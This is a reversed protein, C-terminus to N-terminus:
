QRFKSDKATFLFKPRDSRQYIIKAPPINAIAGPIDGFTICHDVARVLENVMGIVGHLYDDATLELPEANEKYM